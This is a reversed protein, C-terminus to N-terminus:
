RYSFPFLRSRHRDVTELVGVWDDQDLLIQFHDLLLNSRELLTMIRRTEDEAWGRSVFGSRWLKSLPMLVMVQVTPGQTLCCAVSARWFARKQEPEAALEGVSSLWLQWPHRGLSARGHRVAWDRYSSAAAGTEVLYRALLAHQYPGLAEIRGTNSLDDPVADLYRALARGAEENRGADLLAYALYCFQRLADERYEPVEGGGFADLARATMARVSSLFEPGRFGYDQALTGCLRGLPESVAGPATRKRIAHLETLDVLAREIEEPVLSNFDYRNHREAVCQRNIRDVRLSLEREYVAIGPEIRRSVALWERAPEPAGRHNACALQVQALRFGDLPLRDALDLVRAPTLPRLLDELTDLCGHPADAMRELNDLWPGALGHGALIAELAEAYRDMIGPLRLVERCVLHAGAAAWEPDGISRIQHLLRGGCGPAYCQWLGKAEDLSSVTLIEVGPGCRPERGMPIPTMMASFGAERAVAAKKELQGVPQLRGEGDVIGTALLGEPCLGRKLGWGALYLPLALSPGRVRPTEVGALIPWLFLRIGEERELVGLLDSVARRAEGDTVREWWDPVSAASSGDPLLAALCWTIRAADPGVLVLPAATWPMSGAVAWDLPLGLDALDIRGGCWDRVKSAREGGQLLASAALAQATPREGYARRLVAWSRELADLAEPWLLERPRLLDSVREAGHGWRAWAGLEEISWRPNKM